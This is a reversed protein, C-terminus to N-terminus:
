EKGIVATTPLGPLALGEQLVLKAHTNSEVWLTPMLQQAQQLYFQSLQASAHALASFGASEGIHSNQTSLTGGLPTTVVTRKAVAFAEGAGALLGTLFSRAIVATDHSQYKGVLGLTGDTDVAYGQLPREFGAQDPWVCSLWELKAIVRGSGLDAQGKGLVFCGQLPIGTEVPQWGRGQLQYPSHFPGKIAFLIPL